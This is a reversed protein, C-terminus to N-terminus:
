EIAMAKELVRIRPYHDLVVTDEVRKLRDDIKTLKYTIEEFSKQVDIFGRQTMAALEDLTISKKPTARKM